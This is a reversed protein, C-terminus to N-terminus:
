VRRVLQLDVVEDELDPDALAADRRRSACGLLGSAVMSISTSVSLASIDRTRVGAAASSLPRTRTL